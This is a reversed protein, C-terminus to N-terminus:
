CKDYLQKFSELSEPVYIKKDERHGAYWAEIKSKKRSSDSAMRKNINPVEELVSEFQPDAYSKLYFGVFKLNEEITRIDRVGGQFGSTVKLKGIGINEIFNLLPPFYDLVNQPITIFDPFGFLLQDNTKRWARFLFEWVPIPEQFQCLEWYFLGSFHDRIFYHLVHTKGNKPEKDLKLEFAKKQYKLVGKQTIYFHKSPSVLLQHFHNSFDTKYRKIV